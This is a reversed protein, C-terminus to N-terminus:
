GLKCSLPNWVREMTAYLVLIWHLHINLRAPLQIKNGYNKFERAWSNGAAETSVGFLDGDDDVDDDNILGNQGM